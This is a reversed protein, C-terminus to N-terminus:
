GNIVLNEIDIDEEKAEGAADGEAEIKWTSRHNPTTAHSM